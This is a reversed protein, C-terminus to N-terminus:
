VITEENLEDKRNLVLVEGVFTKDSNIKKLSMQAAQQQSEKKSYGTGIGALLGNLLAQSQFVPNRNSDTYNELLEFSM